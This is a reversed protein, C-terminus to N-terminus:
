SLKFAAEIYEVKQIQQDQNRGLIQLAHVDGSIFRGQINKPLKQYDKMKVGHRTPLYTVAITSNYRKANPITTVPM